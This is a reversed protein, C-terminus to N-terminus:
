ELGSVTSFEEFEVTLPRSNVSFIPKELNEWKQTCIYFLPILFMQEDIFVFLKGFNPLHPVFILGAMGM